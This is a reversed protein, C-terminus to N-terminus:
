VMLEGFGNRKKKARSETAYCVKLGQILNTTSQTKNMKISSKYRFHITTMTEPGLELSTLFQVAHGFKTLIDPALHCPHLWQIDIVGFHRFRIIPVSWPLWLLSWVYYDKLLMSWKRPWFDWPLWNTVSKKHVWVVNTGKIRWETTNLELQNIMDCNYSGGVYCSFFISLSSSANGWFLFLLWSFVWIQNYKLPHFKNATKILM